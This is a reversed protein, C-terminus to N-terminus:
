KQGCLAQYRKCHRLHRFEDAVEEIHFLNLFKYALNQIAGYGIWDLPSIIARRATLWNENALPRIMEKM